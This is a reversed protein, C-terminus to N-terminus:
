NFEGKKSRGLMIWYAYMGAMWATIMLVEATHSDRWVKGLTEGATKKFFNTNEDGHQVGCVRDAAAGRRLDGQSTRAFMKGIGEVIHSVAATAALTCAVTNLKWQLTLTAEEPHHFIEGRIPYFCVYVPRALNYAETVLAFATFSALLPLLSRYGRVRGMISYKSSLVLYVPPTIKSAGNTM